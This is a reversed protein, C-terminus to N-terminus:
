PQFMFCTHLLAWAIYLLLLFLYWVSGFYPLRLAPGRERSCAHEGSLLDASSAGINAQHGAGM